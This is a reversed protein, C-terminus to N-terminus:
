QMKVQRLFVCAMCYTIHQNCVACLVVSVSVPVCVSCRQVCYTMCAKTDLM